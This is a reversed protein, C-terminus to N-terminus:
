EKFGYYKLRLVPHVYTGDPNKLEAKKVELNNYNDGWIIGSEMVKKLQEQAPSLKPGIPEEHASDKSSWNGM